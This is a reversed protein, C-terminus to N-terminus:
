AGDTRRLHTTPEGNRQAASLSNQAYNCTAIMLRQHDFSPPMLHKAEESLLRQVGRAPTTARSFAVAVRMFSRIAMSKARIAVTPLYSMEALLVPM